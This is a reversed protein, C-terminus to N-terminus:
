GPRSRRAQRPPGRSEGALEPRGGRAARRGRRGRERERGVLGADHDPDEEVAQDREPEVLDPGAEVELLELRDDRAPHHGGREPEGELDPASPRSPLGRPVANMMPSPSAIREIECWSTRFGYRPWGGSTVVIRSRSFQSDTLSNAWSSPINTISAEPAAIAAPRYRSTSEFDTESGLPRPPRCRAAAATVCRMGTTETIMESLPPVTRTKM